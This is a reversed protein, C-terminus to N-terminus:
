ASMADVSRCVATGPLAGSVWMGLENLRLCPRTSAFSFSALDNVALKDYRTAIQGSSLAVGAPASGYGEVVKPYIVEAVM